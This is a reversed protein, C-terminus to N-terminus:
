MCGIRCSRSDCGVSKAFGIFLQSATSRLWANLEEAALRAGGQSPTTQVPMAPQSPEGFFYDWVANQAEVWEDMALRGRVKQPRAGGQSPTARPVHSAERGAEGAVNERAKAYVRVLCAKALCEADEEKTSGCGEVHRATGLRVTPLDTAM